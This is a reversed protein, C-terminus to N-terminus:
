LISAILSVSLCCAILLGVGYAALTRRPDHVALTRSPHKPM